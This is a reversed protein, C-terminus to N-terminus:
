SAEDNDSERLREILSIKKGTVRLGRRKLEAKLQSVAMAEYDAPTTTTTTNTAASDPEDAPPEKPEVDDGFVMMEPIEIPGETDIENEIEWLAEDSPEDAVYLDVAERAARGLAELDLNEFDIDLEDLVGTGSNDELITGRGSDKASGRTLLDPAGGGSEMGLGDTLM